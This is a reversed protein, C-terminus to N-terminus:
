KAFSTKSYSQAQKNEVIIRIADERYFGARILVNVAKKIAKVQSMPLSLLYAAFDM